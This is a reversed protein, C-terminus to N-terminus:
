ESSRMQTESVDSTMVIELDDLFASNDEGIDFYRSAHPEASLPWRSFRDVVRADGNPVEVLHSFDNAELFTDYLPHTRPVVRCAPVGHKELRNTADSVTLGNLARAVESVDVVDLSSLLGESPAGNQAAVAIWGDACEFFRHRENPGRFLHGGQLPRPSGEWTTFEAAQLFTSTSALSTWIRQGIGTQERLYLASLIGLASLTGTGADNVGASACIPGDDGGQAIAMGSLSQLIPDFGPLDAWREAQGFASVSCHVLHPYNISTDNLGLRGRVPPRLNEILVDVKSLASAIREASRPDALDLSVGRKRQNVALFSLPYARYGDGEPPEVRYVDAGFDALVAAGFPGAFYSSLDLAKMGQLPLPHGDEAAGGDTEPTAPWDVSSLEVEQAFGRVLGPTESFSIPVNPTSVPGLLSHKLDLRSNNEAIIPNRMWEERTLVRQCPVRSDQFRDLWYDSSHAAFAPELIETVETRGRRLDLVSTFDGAVSPLDLVSLLGLSELARAFLRSTLAALFVYKGDSCAYPRWNPAPTSARSPAFSPEGNIETYSTGMLAAGADLGTVVSPLPSGFRAKGIMAAVAAAAGLAGHISSLTSVVPAVPSLDDAPLSVALGTVAALFLPDDPLNSWEGAEAYPPMWVHSVSPAVRWVEGNTLGREVIEKPTLGALMVDAGLALRLIDDDTARIQRKGRGWCVDATASVNSTTEIEPSVVVVDAGLDALLMGAIRAGSGSSVEIVRLGDLPGCRLDTDNMVNVSAALSSQSDM